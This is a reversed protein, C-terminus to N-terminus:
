SLVMSFVRLEIGLYMSGKFNSHNVYTGGAHPIIYEAWLIYVGVSEKRVETGHDLIVATASFV